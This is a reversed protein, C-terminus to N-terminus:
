EGRLFEEDMMEFLDKQEWFEGNEDYIDIYHDVYPALKRFEAYAKIFTQKAKEIEAEQRQALKLKLASVIQNLEATTTKQVIETVLCDLEKTM